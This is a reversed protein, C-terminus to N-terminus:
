LSIKGVHGLDKAFYEIKSPAHNILLELKGQHGPVCIVGAKMPHPFDERFPTQMRSFDSYKPLKM